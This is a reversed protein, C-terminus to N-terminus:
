RRDIYVRGNVELYIANYCKIQSTITPSGTEPTPVTYGMIEDPSSYIEDFSEGEAPYYGSIRIKEGQFLLEQEGSLNKLIFVDRGLINLINNVYKIFRVKCM